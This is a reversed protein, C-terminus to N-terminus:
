VGFIMAKSKKHAITRCYVKGFDSTIAEEKFIASIIDM